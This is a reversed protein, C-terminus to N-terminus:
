TGPESGMELLASRVRPRLANVFANTRERLWSIARERDAPNELNKLALREVIMPREPSFDVTAGPLDSSIEAAQSALMKSAREGASNINSSLALGAVNKSTDRYVTIWSSGGPAGLKFVVHGGLSPRPVPQQPDDLRLGALFDSWFAFRLERGRIQAQEREPDVSTEEFTDDIVTMDDPVNIVTRAVTLTRALVRPVVLRSGDPAQYIPMEVLGLTFHLGAHVQLYEAIAEVGERIGDGVILLLFRGRRLNATLSDNFAIEDIEHGAERVIDLLVNGKRGLRRSAERQLDSASWKTLEKSYDLIQGIVERRGEPNKWLKCEVLVPLGSPTVLLNDIPGAPTTLERCVAIPGAFLPDIEAIPLCAPHRHVIGQIDAESLGHGGVGLALPTMPTIYKGDSSIVLPTAHQRTM